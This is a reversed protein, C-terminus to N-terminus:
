LKFPVPKNITIGKTDINVDYALIEVGNGYAKKLEESYLPDIHSAPEFRIVDMRQILYFMVARNGARVEKQLEVLHKLGRSTVADPFYCIGNEMLTCNKVEIFTKKNINELLIDIRSNEGYKVETRVKEFNTLDKILKNEISEKVLKNPIGTNVGVLSTPMEILEWTYKLKRDPRDHKSLYVPRGPECCSKMSGTNPCLATVVRGNGLKVDAKFRKYRKVLTGKVLKPWEIM